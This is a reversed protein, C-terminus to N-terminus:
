REPQIHQLMSSYQLDSGFEQMVSPIADYFGTKNILVEELLALMVLDNELSSITRDWGVVASAGRFILSKALDHKRISECGGIIIVTQPFKGVMLEDVFKSGVVFYIKDPTLEKSERLEMLKQENLPVATAVQGSLQEQIYKIKFKEGTFLYTDNDDTPIELSHTRIYIFKYNMSPLKKYFDVTIDKTTYVDVDYCANELYELAKQQFSKNPISDHLQDIIAALQRPQKDPSSTSNIINAEMLFKVASTVDSDSVSGEEWFELINKVYSPIRADDKNMIDHLQDIITASLRPQKDPSSTSTIINAEVLFKITNAVDSDSFVGEEWSVFTNKVYSPISAGDKNPPLFLRTEPLTTGNKIKTSDLKIIGRKWLNEIANIIDRDSIKDENWWKANTKFWSPINTDEPYSQALAIPSFTVTQFLLVTALFFVLSVM